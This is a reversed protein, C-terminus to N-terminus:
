NQVCINKQLTYGTTCTGTTTVTTNITCTTGSLTGGSACNYTTISTATYNQNITCTTGSLTGGLPCIYGGQSDNIFYQYGDIGLVTQGPLAKEGYRGTFSCNSGFSGYTAGSIEQYYAPGGPIGVMNYPLWDGWMTVDVWNTVHCSSSGITASYTSSKLCTTGSLTGGNPCTYATIGTSSYTNITIGTCLNTTSDWTYGTECSPTSTLKGVCVGNNYVDNITQFNGDDCSVGDPVSLGGTSHTTVQVQEFLTVNNKKAEEGYKFVLTNMASNNITNKTDTIVVGIGDQYADIANLIGGNDASKVNKPLPNLFAESALLISATISLIIIKKM